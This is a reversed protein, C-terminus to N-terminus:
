GVRSSPSSNMLFKSSIPLLGDLTTIDKAAFVRLFGHGVPRSLPNDLLEADTRTQFININKAVRGSMLKALSTRIFTIDPIEQPVFASLSGSDRM